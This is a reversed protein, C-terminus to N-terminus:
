DTKKVVLFKVADRGPLLDLGLEQRLVRKLGDSTFDWKFDIDYEGTLKTQDVIVVGLCLELYDVLQSISQGHASYSNMEQLGSLEGSPSRLGPANPSRVTLILVNTDMMKFLGTLGFTKAITERAAQINEDENPFTAVFDYKGEPIPTEIILQAPRVGYATMLLDPVTQGLGLAKGNRSGAAHLGSKLTSPLSPLIKTQPPLRDLVSLDYKEQWAEHHKGVETVVVTATGAVLLGCASLVVVSKMKSWAMLKLAGKILPLTATSAAAGKTLAIAATTTALTTPAAQVANASIAATLIVAPVAVGRKAFFLRLKELARNVRKKAADESTGLAAGIESMSKGDFFRLVVAHHDTENLGAMAVDLLPAIQLWVDSGTENSLTQMHAEQERRTRRIESRLFTVATLQAARCLWGSVIVGKPLSSAKKSLIVFVAQSIEEAHHPNRTYRLAISYVKDIHRRVLAAFAEESDRDVYERLLANDDLEQMSM